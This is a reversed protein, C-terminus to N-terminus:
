EYLGFFPRRGSSVGGTAEDYAPGQAHATRIANADRLWMNLFSLADYAGKADTRADPVVVTKTPTLDGSREEADHIKQQIEYHYTGVPPTKLKFTKVWWADRADEISGGPAPDPLIRYTAWGDVPFWEGGGWGMSEGSSRYFEQNKGNPLKFIGVLRSVGEEKDVVNILNPDALVDSLEVIAGMSSIDPQTIRQGPPRTSYQRDFSQQQMEKLIIIRLETRNIRM